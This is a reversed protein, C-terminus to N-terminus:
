LEYLCVAHVPQVMREGGASHETQLVGRFGENLRTEVDSGISDGVPSSVRIVDDLM